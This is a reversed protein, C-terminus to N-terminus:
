GCCPSHVTKWSLSLSFISNYIYIYKYIHIHICIYLYIYIYIYVCKHSLSRRAVKTMTVLHCVLNVLESGQNRGRTVALCRFRNTNHASQQPVDPLTSSVTISPLQTSMDKEFCGAWFSADVRVLYIPYSVLWGGCSIFYFIFLFYVFFSKGVKYM